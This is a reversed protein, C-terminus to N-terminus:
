LHYNHFNPAAIPFHRFALKPTAMTFIYLNSHDCADAVEALLLNIKL